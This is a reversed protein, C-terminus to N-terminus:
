AALAELARNIETTKLDDTSFLSAMQDKQGLVGLLLRVFAIALAPRPLYRLRLDFIEPAVTLAERMTAHLEEWALPEQDRQQLARVHAIVRTLQPDTEWRRPDHRVALRLLKAPTLLVM